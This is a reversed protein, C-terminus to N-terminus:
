TSVQIHDPPGAGPMRAALAFCALAPGPKRLEHLEAGLNVQTCPTKV